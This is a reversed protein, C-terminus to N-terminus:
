PAELPDFGFTEGTADLAYRDCAHHGRVVKLNEKGREKEMSEEREEEKGQTGTACNVGGWRSGLDNQEVVAQADRESRSARMKKGM